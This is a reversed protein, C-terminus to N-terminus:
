YTTNEIATIGMIAKIFTFAEGRVDIIATINTMGIIAKIVTIGMIAKIFAFAGGRIDIIGMIDTM